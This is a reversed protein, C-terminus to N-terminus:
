EIVIKHCYVGAAASVRAMYVGARLFGNPIHITEKQKHVGAYVLNGLADFLEVTFTESFILPASIYFSGTTPNPFTTLTTATELDGSHLPVPYFILGGCGEEFRTVFVKNTKSTDIANGFVSASLSGNYMLGGSVNDSLYFAGSATRFSAPSAGLPVVNNNIVIQQLNGLTDYKALFFDYTHITLALTDGNASTFRSTVFGNSLSGTTGFATVENGRRYICTGYGYYSYQNGQLWLCNGSNSVKAVFFKGGSFTTTSANANNFVQTNGSNYCDNAGALYCTGNGDVFMSKPQTQDNLSGQTYSDITWQNVGDSDRKTLFLQSASSSGGPKTGTIYINNSNDVGMDVIQKVNAPTVIKTWTINGAPSVKLMGKSTSGFTNAVTYNYVGNLAITAYTYSGPALGTAVLLNDAKDTIVKQPEFAPSSLLWQLKGMSDLKAIFGTHAGSLTCACPPYYAQGILASDGTNDTFYKSAYGCLYINGKSDEASSSIMDPNIGDGRTHVIWRLAGNRSYRAFYGGDNAPVALSDGFRSSLEEQAYRGSIFYGNKSQTLKSIDPLYTGSWTQVVGNNSLLWCSDDPSPEGYIYPSQKVISDYCGNNSWCVLKTSTPGIASFSVTPTALSSQTPSASPSFSWAYNQADTCREYFRVQELALANIHSAHYAASTKEVAIKITDTFYAKCQAITSGAQLYYNGAQSIPQTTYTLTSGTGAGSSGYSSAGGFSYLTYYVNAETSDISLVVPEAHCLINKSVAVPLDIKPPDVITVVQVATDYDGNYVILEVTYQGTAGFNYPVYTGCSSSVSSGNVYYACSASSGTAGAINVLTNKCAGGLNLKALPKTPGGGDTSSLLTGNSGCAYFVANSMAEFWFSNINYNLSSPQWELYYHNGPGKFIGHDTGVYYAGLYLMLGNANLPGFDYSNWDAPAAGAWDYLSTGVGFGANLGSCVVANYTYLPTAALTYSFVNSTNTGNILFGSNTGVSFQTGSFSISTLNYPYSCAIIGSSGSTFNVILGNAGVAYYSNNQTNYTIRNLSSGAAGTYIFSYTLSPFNVLLIMAKGSVTDTGCAFVKNFGNIQDAYAHSFKTHNYVLSDATNGLIDFRTWSGPGNGGTTTFYLGKHGALMGSQGWFVVGTLADNIGTNLNTWGAFLTQTFVFFSFLLKKRM